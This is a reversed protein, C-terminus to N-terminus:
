RAVESRASGCETILVCHGSRNAEHPGMHVIIFRVVGSPHGSGAM